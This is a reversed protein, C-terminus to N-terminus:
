YCPTPTHSAVNNSVNMLERNSLMAMYGNCVRILQLTNTVSLAASRSLSAQCRYNDMACKDDTGEKKNKFIETTRLVLAIHDRPEGVLLEPMSVFAFGTVMM